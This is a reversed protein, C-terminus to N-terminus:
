CDLMPLCLAMCEDELLHVGSNYTTPACLCTHRLCTGFSAQILRRCSDSSVTNVYMCTCAHVHMFVKILSLMVCGHSHSDRKRSGPCLKCASSLADCLPFVAVRPM